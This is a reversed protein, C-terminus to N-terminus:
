FATVVHFLATAVALAPDVVAKHWTSKKLYQEFDLTKMCSSTKNYAIKTESGIFVLFLGIFYLVLLFLQFWKALAFFRSHGKLSQCWAIQFELFNLSIPSILRRSCTCFNLSQKLQRRVPWREFIQLIVNRLAGLQPLRCFLSELLSKEVLSAVNRIGSAVVATAVSVVVPPRWKTHVLSVFLSMIRITNAIHSKPDEIQNTTLKRTDLSWNSVSRSSDM